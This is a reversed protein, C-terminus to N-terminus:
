FRSPFSSIGPLRSRLGDRNPIAQEVCLNLVRHQGTDLAARQFGVIHNLNDRGTLM